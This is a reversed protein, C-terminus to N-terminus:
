CEQIVKKIKNHDIDLVDCIFECDESALYRKAGAKVIRKAAERNEKKRDNSAFQPSIYDKVAQAVVAVALADYGATHKSSCIGKPM